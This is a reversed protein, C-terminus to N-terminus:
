GFVHCAAALSLLGLAGATVWMEFSVAVCTALSLFSVLTSM